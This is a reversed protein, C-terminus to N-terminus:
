QNSDPPIPMEVSRAPPELQSQLVQLSNAEITSKDFYADVWGHVMEYTVTDLRILDSAEVFPLEFLGTTKGHKTEDIDRDRALCIWYVGTVIDTSNGVTEVRLPGWKWEYEVAM